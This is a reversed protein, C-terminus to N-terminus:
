VLVYKTNKGNGIIRIAKKQLLRRLIKVATPQSINLEKEVEKRGVVGKVELYRLVALENKDYKESMDVNNHCNVNPLVVKFANNSIDIQPRAAYQGYSEIIRPIGTGYAEILKLRYFINALRENRAVSVGLLIDDKSIGKVLGGVSVFEMRDEFVSVLTSGSYSYDRHVVANLLAERIATVPYDRVDLRHLGEFEARTRNYQDIVAYVDNLQKLLSGTFEHRDKFVSKEVGEFYALKISHQCQDSLLLALNCYMRDENLLGLTIRQNDGFDVGRVQFEKEAEIFTLQQNLSRIKEYSEGDTEKIMKLIAFESAPVTSAGQRVFVGEPRIGKGALYYPSSSGRQVEVELVAKGEIEIVEYKVFPTVDPRISERVANAVRLITQDVDDVGVSNGQDDVGIYLKGGQTNAFAIVTKKLDETYARKFETTTNEIKEM